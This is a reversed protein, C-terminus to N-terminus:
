TQIYRSAAMNQIPLHFVPILAAIDTILVKKVISKAKSRVKVM